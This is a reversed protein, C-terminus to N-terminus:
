LASDGTTPAADTQQGTLQRYLWDTRRELQDSRRRELELEAHLSRVISYLAVTVREYHLGEVDGHEDHIVLEPAVAEFDDAIFGLQAPAEPPDSKLRFRKPEVTLLQAADLGAETVDTKYKAASAVTGLKGSSDIHLAAYSTVKDKSGTCEISKSATLSGSANVNDGAYVTTSTTISHSSKFTGPIDINDPMYDNPLSDILTGITGYQTIVALRNDDGAPGATAYTRDRLGTGYTRGDSDIQFIATGAQIRDIGLNARAGAATNAGTGGKSIPVPVGTARGLWNVVGDLIGNIDDAGLRLDRAPNMTSLGAAAATDGNAM